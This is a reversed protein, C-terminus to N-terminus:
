PVMSRDLQPMSPGARYLLGTRRIRLLAERFGRGLGTGAKCLRGTRRARLLAERFGRRVGLPPQAGEEPPRAFASPVARRDRQSMRGVPPHAGGEPPRAFASM